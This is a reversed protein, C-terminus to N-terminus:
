FAVKKFHQKLRLRLEEKTGDIKLGLARCWDRARSRNLSEIQDDTLTRQPVVPQCIRQHVQSAVAARGEETLYREVMQRSIYGGFRRPDGNQIANTHWSNFHHMEWRYSIAMWTSLLNFNLHLEM